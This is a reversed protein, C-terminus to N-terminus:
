QKRKRESELCFKEYAEEMEPDMEDDDDSDDLFPDESGPLDTGNEEYFFDERVLMEQYKEQYDPDAATFPIGDSTYFTPENMFYNPDNEPTSESFTSATHVRGWNSSRLEVLKLLMQKVDQSLSIRLRSCQADLVVNKMRQIVEDMYSSGKEKWADELVSGTLKLLKVACIVNDDVPNSFLADMLEKLGSQLIQAKTVQGKPGKIELNLYLEGLFLVFAHFRKRTAEDGKAAQDRKEFETQCRMLLVHRFNLNQPNILLNSSLHNCLRAGTYSFNPVSTAQQYVLEVLEKLSEETTIVNSLLDTFTYIEAEFSGPQQTLHNLIDQVYEALCMEQVSFAGNEEVYNNCEVSYGAPYFEAANVSLNSFVPGSESPRTKSVAMPNAQSLLSTKKQSIQDASIHPPSTLPPRLPEQQQAGGPRGQTSARNGDETNSQQHNRFGPVSATQESGRGRGFGPGGRGRSRGAGPARDFGESM